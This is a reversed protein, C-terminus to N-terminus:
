LTYGRLFGEFYSADSNVIYPKHMKIMPQCEFLAVVIAGEKVKHYKALYAIIDNQKKQKLKDFHVM